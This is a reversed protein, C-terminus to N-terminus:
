KIEKFLPGHKSLIRGQPIMSDSMRTRMQPKLDRSRLGGKPFIHVEIPDNGYLELVAYMRNRGEHGVVKAPMTLDGDDWAAPIDVDLWPSGIKGGNKLHEKIYDVSDARDRSLESALSLFTEPRMLVRMGFYDADQNHPVAGLGDVNDIISTDNELLQKLKM